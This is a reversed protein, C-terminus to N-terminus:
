PKLEDNNLLVLLWQECHQSPPHPLPTVLLSMNVYVSVGLVSMNLKCPVTKLPFLLGIVAFSAAYGPCASTGALTVAPYALFINDVQCAIM